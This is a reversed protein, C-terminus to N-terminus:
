HGIYEPTGIFSLVDERGLLSYVDYYQPMFNVDTNGTETERRFKTAITQLKEVFSYGPHYCAIDKARNDMIDVGQAAARDYAWFSILVKENPTVWDFGAEM